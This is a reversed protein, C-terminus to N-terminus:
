AKKILGKAELEESNDGKFEDGIKHQGFNMDRVWVYRALAPPTKGEALDKTAAVRTESDKQKEEDTPPTVPAGMNMKPAEFKKKSM